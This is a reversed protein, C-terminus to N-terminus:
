DIDPEAALHDPQVQTQAAARGIALLADATEPRDIARLVKLRAPTVEVGAHRGLWATDMLIDYRLCTLLPDGAVCHGQLDGVEGDIHWPAPSRGLWQLLAQAQWACDEMISSLSEAALIASPLGAYGSIPRTMGGSGTGVSVIRLRDAGTPWGYGYAPLTALMFLLLSPNNYPSVGGDVFLGHIGDAVVLHEPGFYTPAATSARILAHLPLDRNATATPDDGPPDFYRSRPNNHFVWPSRTDLRKAVIALGTLLKASGLTEDGVQAKIETLLRGSPFKPVLLGGHWRGGRFARPTLTRYIHVLEGVSFGMALGTAIIAGTSTGGILDFYHCLRFDPDGGAQERLITEIRELFGLAVIGRVGGGDLALIRKPGPGFLHEDRSYRRTLM